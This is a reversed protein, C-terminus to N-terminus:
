RLSSQISYLYVPSRYIDNAKCTEIATHSPLAFTNSILMCDKDQVFRELKKMGGPYLYCLLLAHSPIKQTLFNAYHFRLNERRYFLRSFVYPVVSIEYGIVQSAPFEQAAAYALNGWGSGLEIITKPAPSPVLSLMSQQAMRNSPMPSIGYRITSWLISLLLFLVLSILLISAM